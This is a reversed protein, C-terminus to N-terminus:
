ARNQPVGWVVDGCVTAVQQPLATSWPMGEFGGLRGKVWWWRAASPPCCDM